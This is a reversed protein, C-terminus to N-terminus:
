CTATGRRDGTRCVVLFLDAEGALSVWAKRGTVRWGDGDPVARTTIAAADSGAHPETLRSAASRTPRLDARRGLARQLAASGFRPSPRRRRRQADLARLRLRRRRAGLEEFVQMGDAFRSARAASRGEARLPRLLGDAAAAM